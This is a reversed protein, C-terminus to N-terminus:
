QGMSGGFMAARNKFAEQRRKKEEEEQKREEQEQRIEDEFKSTKRIAAIQSHFPSVSPLFTTTTTNVKSYM